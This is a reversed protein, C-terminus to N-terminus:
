NSLENVRSKFSLTSIAIKCSNDSCGMASFDGTDEGSYTKLWEIAWNRLVSSSRFSGPGKIKDGNSTKKQMCNEMHALAKAYKMM